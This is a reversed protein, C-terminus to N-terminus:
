QTTCEVFLDRQCFILKEKVTFFEMVTPGKTKKNYIYDPLVNHFFKYLEKVAQLFMTIGELLWKCATGQAVRLYM